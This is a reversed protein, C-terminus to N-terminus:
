APLRGEARARATRALTRAIRLPVPTRWRGILALLLRSATEPDTRWAAHALLPRTGGRTRVRYGVLRGDVLLPSREGRRPGPDDGSAILERDTVGVSPLCLAAGLHLALGAGRPHDRGTADVLLVDPLRPLARVAREMLAGCRRGLLGAVYPAGTLGELVAHDVLRAGAPGTTSVAAAWARQGAAGRGPSGSPFAVFLAGVHLRGAALADAPAPAPRWRAEVAELRALRRQLAQFRRTDEPWPEGIVDAM